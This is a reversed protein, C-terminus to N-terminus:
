SPSSGSTSRKQKLREVRRFSTEGRGFIVIKTPKGTAEAEELRRLLRGVGYQGRGGCCFCTCPRTGNAGPHYRWGVVQPLSRVRILESPKIRRPVIVEYGEPSAPVKTTENGPIRRKSRRERAQASDNGEVGMMLAVAEAATMPVHPSNFHGVTVPEDDPLRFYVGVMTGAAWRKLERLWQHSVYFNRTVPMAYVGRRHRYRARPSIGSRRIAALHRESTLHVFVPM